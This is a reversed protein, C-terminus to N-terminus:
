AAAKAEFDASQKYPHIVEMYKLLVRSFLEAGATLQKDQLFPAVDSLPLAVISAAEWADAASTAASLIVQASFLHEPLGRLDMVAYSNWTYSTSERVLALAKFRQRFNEELPITLNLEEKLCRISAEYLDQKGLDQAELGEGFGVSWCNPFKGMTASRKSLLLMGDSTLVATDLGASAGRSLSVPYLPPINGQEFRETVVASWACAQSYKIEQCLLTFKGDVVDVGVVSQCDGDFATGNSVRYLVKHLGRQYSATSIVENPFPVTFNARVARIALGHPNEAVLTLLPLTKM